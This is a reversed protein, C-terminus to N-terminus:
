PKTNFIYKNKGDLNSTNITVRVVPPLPKEIRFSAYGSRYYGPSDDHNDYRLQVDLTDGQTSNHLSIMSMSHVKDKIEIQYRLNICEGGYWVSTLYLPYDPLLSAEAPSITEITAYPIEQITTILEIEINNGITEEPSYGIIVRQGDALLTSPLIDEPYLYAGDDRLFILSHSQHLCTVIDQRFETLDITEESDDCGSLTTVIFLALILVRWNM